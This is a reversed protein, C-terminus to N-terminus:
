DVLFLERKKSHIRKIRKGILSEACILMRYHRNTLDEEKIGKKKLFYERTTIM